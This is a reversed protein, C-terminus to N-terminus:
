SSSLLSPYLIPPGGDTLYWTMQTQLTTLKQWIASRTRLEEELRRPAPIKGSARRRKVQMFAPRVTTAATAADPPRHPIRAQYAHLIGDQYAHGIGHQDPAGLDAPGSNRFDAVKPNTPGEFLLLQPRASPPPNPLSGM